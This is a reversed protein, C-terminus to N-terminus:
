NGGKSGSAKFPPVWKGDKDVEKLRLGNKTANAKIGGGFGQITVKIKNNL